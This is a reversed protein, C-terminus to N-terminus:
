SPMLATATAKGKTVCEYNRGEGSDGGEVDLAFATCAAYQM